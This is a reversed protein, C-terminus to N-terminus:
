EKLNSPDNQAFQELAKRLAEDVQEASVGAAQGFAAAAGVLTQILQLAAAVLMESGM